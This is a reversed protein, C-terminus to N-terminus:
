VFMLGIPHRRSELTLGAVTSGARRSSSNVSDDISLWAAATKENLAPPVDSPYWHHERRKADAVSTSARVGAATRFHPSGTVFGALKGTKESVFYVTRCNVHSDGPAGTKPDVATTPIGGSPVRACDYGLALFSAFERILPRLAGTSIYDAPGAFAQIEMPTSRDVRLLGVAGNAGVVGEGGHPVRSSGCASAASVLSAAVLIGVLAARLRVAREGAAKCRQYRFLSPAVLPQNM